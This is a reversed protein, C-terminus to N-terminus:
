WKWMLFTGNGEKDVTDKFIGITNKLFSLQGESDNIAITTSNFFMSGASNFSGDKNYHGIAQFTYPAKDGTTNATFEAMGSIFVSMNNDLSTVKATGNVQIPINGKLIGNGSFSGATTNQNEKITSTSSSSAKEQKEDINKKIVQNFHEVYIPYIISLNNSTTISPLLSKFEINNINNNTIASAKNDLKVNMFFAISMFIAFVFLIYLFHKIKM